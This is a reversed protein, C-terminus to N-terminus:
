LGSLLWEFFEEFWSGEDDVDSISKDIVRGNADFTVGVVGGEGIWTEANGEGADAALLISGRTPSRYDGPPGGLLEVVETRHMGEQIRLFNARTVGPGDSRQVPVLLRVLGAWGTLLCAVVVSALILRM